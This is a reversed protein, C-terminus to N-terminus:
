ALCALLCVRLCMAGDTRSADVGRPCLSGPDSYFVQSLIRIPVFRPSGLLIRHLFLCIYLYVFFSLFLFSLFCVHFSPASGPSVGPLADQSRIRLASGPLTDLVEFVLNQVRGALVCSVLGLLREPLM